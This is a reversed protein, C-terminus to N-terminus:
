KRKSLAVALIIILGKVAIQWSSSVGILVLGNNLVGIILSGILTGVITGRGGFLSTGGLIVAAIVDLELGDAFDPRSAHGQAAFILSAMAALVGTLVFCCIKIRATNIGSYSAATSNGGTAYVKRGFTSFHLLLGGLVLAMISWLIPVPIGAISGEYFVAWFTTNDVLVPATDTVVFALGKAIGLMGLTVLFSPIGLKTVLLGNALGLLAGVTLGVLAGLVWNNAFESMFLAASVGSLKLISAVSLDIEASIIVFTMGVAMITVLTTQRGINAFNASSLFVDSKLSFFIVLAILAIFIGYPKDGGLLERVAHRKSVPTSASTDLAVTSM